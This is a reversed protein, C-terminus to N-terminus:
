VQSTATTVGTGAASPTFLGGSTTTGDTAAWTVNQNATGTVVATCQSTQTTDIPTPCTAAVSIPAPNVTITASATSNDPM